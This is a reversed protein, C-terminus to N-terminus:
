QRRSALSAALDMAAQATAKDMGIKKIGDEDMDLASVEGDASVSLRFIPWADGEIDVFVTRKKDQSITWNEEAHHQQIFKALSEWLSHTLRGAVRGRLTRDPNPRIKEVVKTRINM